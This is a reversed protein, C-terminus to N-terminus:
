SVIFKRLQKHRTVANVQKRPPIINKAVGVLASTAPLVVLDGFFRSHASLRAFAQLESIGISHLKSPPHTVIEKV